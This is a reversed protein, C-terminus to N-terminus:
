YTIKFPYDKVVYEYDTVILTCLCQLSLKFCSLRIYPYLIIYKTVSMHVEHTSHVRYLLVTYKTHVRLLQTGRTHQTSHVVTSHVEHTCRVM